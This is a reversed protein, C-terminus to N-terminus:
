RVNIESGDISQIVATDKTYSSNYTLKVDFSPTSEFQNDSSVTFQPRVDTASEFYIGLATLKQISDLQTLLERVAYCLDSAEIDDVNQPQYDALFDIQYRVSRVTRYTRSISSSTEGSDTFGGGVPQPPIIATIFVQYKKSGSRAGTAQQTPQFSRTVRLDNSSIGFHNVLQDRIVDGLNKIVVGDFNYTTM